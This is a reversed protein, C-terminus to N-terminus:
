VATEITTEISLWPRIVQITEPLGMVKSVEMYMWICWSLGGHWGPLRSACVSSWQYRRHVGLQWRSSSEPEVVYFPLIEDGLAPTGILAQSAPGIVLVPFIMCSKEVFFAPTQRHHHSYIPINLQTWFTCFPAWVSRKMTGIRQVCSCFFGWTKSLEDVEIAM